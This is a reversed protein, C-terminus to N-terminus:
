RPNRRVIAATLATAFGVWVAYPVLLRGAVPDVRHARRVLDLCSAELLVVEALALRPRRATFFLWNWGANLVLNAALAATLGRRQRPDARELARASGVAILGYLPTWVLGFAPGPPQWPPKRLRRYWRSDVDTGAIGVLATATVAAATGLLTPLRRRGNRGGSRLLM